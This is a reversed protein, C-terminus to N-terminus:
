SCNHSVVISGLKLCQALYGIRFSASRPEEISVHLRLVLEYIVEMSFFATWAAVNICLASTAVM